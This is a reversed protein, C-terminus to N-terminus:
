RGEEVLTRAKSFGDWQSLKWVGGLNEINGLLGQTVANTIRMCINYDCGGNRRHQNSTLQETLYNSLILGGSAVTMPPTAPM